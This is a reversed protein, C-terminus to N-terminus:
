GLRLRHVATWRGHLDDARRLFVPDAGQPRVRGDDQRHREPLSCGLSWEGGGGDGPQQITGRLSPPTYLPGHDFQAVIALAEARLAPSYDILNDLSIGQHEFPAPRTPFPQTSSTREGPVTSQPVAREEIPWVPEGTVRDLVFVYRANPAQSTRPRGRGCNAKCWPESHPRPRGRVSTPARRAMM